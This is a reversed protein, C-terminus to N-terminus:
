LLIPVLTYIVVFSINLKEEVYIFFFGVEASVWASIHSENSESGNIEISITMWYYVAVFLFLLLQDVANRM